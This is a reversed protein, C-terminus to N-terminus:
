VLTLPSKDVSYNIKMNVIMIVAKLITSETTNIAM